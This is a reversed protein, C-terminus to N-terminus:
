NGPPMLTPLKLPTFRRIYSQMAWELHSMGYQKAEQLARLNDWGDHQIRYCAIVTGTRDKGRWCHIFTKATPQNLLLSLIEEIEGQTPAGVSRLPVHSYHLGLQEALQKERQRDPGDERLDIIRSVGLAKLEGLAEESPSAGRYLTESVQGFNHVHVAPADAGSAVFALLIVGFLAKKM